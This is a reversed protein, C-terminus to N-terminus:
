RRAQVRHAAGRVREEVLDGSELDDHDVVATDAPERGRVRGGVVHNQVVHVVQVWTNATVPRCGAAAVAV